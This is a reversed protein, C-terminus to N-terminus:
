KNYDYFGSGTKRGLRNEDFMKKILQYGVPEKGTTEIERQMRYYTLEVGSMDMMEFPGLPYNLGDKCVIDVDQYTCYGEEVMFLAENKVANVIRNAVFGEIEKEIVVPNKGTSVAFEKLAEVTKDSTFESRCIEVLKMVLVPYFYHLNALRAPCDICDAFRSSPLFSSNSAIITDTRVIGNLQRFLSVKAEVTEIIAEIVLDANDAAEELTDVVHFREAIEDVQNQTMRGKEVRGKLYNESWNQVVEVTQPISDMLYVDYGHIATNLAIQSGMRGGGVVCIKKLKM